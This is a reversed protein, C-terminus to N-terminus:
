TFYAWSGTDSNIHFGLSCLREADEFEFPKDAEYFYLIDHEADMFFQKKMGKDYYTSMILLGLIIGEISDASPHDEVNELKELEEKTFQIM